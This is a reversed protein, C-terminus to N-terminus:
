KGVNEATVDHDANNIELTVDQPQEVANVGETKAWGNRAFYFALEPSVDYTEGEEFRDRNDLFTTLATIKAV